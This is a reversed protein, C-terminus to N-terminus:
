ESEAKAAKAKLANLRARENLYDVVLAIILLLGQSIVNWYADLRIATLGNKFCNLMLVGVFCGLMSGSGGGFAVGGLVAATIADLEQGLVSTPAGSHMVSALIAGGFASIMGCNLYLITQTRKPNLGSLRAAHANGGVLFVNRGFQTQSLIFGYIIMLVVMIIFPLPILDFLAFSGINWFAKDNIPINQNATVALGLGKYVSAMASTVIFGMFNLGNVFFSNVAGAVLGFILVLLLAVPWALGERLLIAVLVGGFMGEAGAALNIGGGILLCAVGVAIIGSISMMNMISRINGSSLYHKNMIFFFLVLGVVIAIQIMVKSRVIRKLFGTNEM